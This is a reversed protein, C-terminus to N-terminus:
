AARLYGPAPRANSRWAWFDPAGGALHSAPVLLGDPSLGSLLGHCHGAGQVSLQDVAGFFTGFGLPPASSRWIRGLHGALAPLNGRLKFDAANLNAEPALDLVYDQESRTLAYSSIPSSRLALTGTASGDVTLVRVSRGPLLAVSTVDLWGGLDAGGQVLLWDSQQQEFNVDVRLVGDGGQTFDGAITTQDVRGAAGVQLLGHNVISAGYREAGQQLVGFESASTRLNAVVGAAMSDPSDPSDPSDLRIDGTIMGANFVDLSSGEDLARAGEYRLAMGSAAGLRAQSGLELCNGVSGCVVM